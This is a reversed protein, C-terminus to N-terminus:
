FALVKEFKMHGCDYIRLYGREAMIQFETKDKDFGEKILVDKRFKFRYHRTMESPKFYFYNPKTSGIFNFEMNKYLNGQSYRRDAFTLISKPNYAKIFYSLLKTAGGIVQTDMKNCFRLMEFKGEISQKNGMTMRKGGFTMVSVLENNYFLGIKIKGNVNGQVHNNELFEKSTKANIEKIICKRGYVKNDILGLKSKIISKVIEKKYIWEDEFIHLLQINEKECNITKNLHYNKDKQNDSHWYLGDFEIGMKYDPMYIDIEKNNIKIKETKIKLEKEIFDRVENEKISSNESIPNCLTCINEFSGVITRNYLNYRNIEFSNHLKCLNKITITNGDIIIDSIDIKLYDSWFSKRKLDMSNKICLKNEKSEVYHDVNYKNQITTTIKNKIEESQFGYEVDYNKM